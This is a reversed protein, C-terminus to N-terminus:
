WVHTLFLLHVKQGLLVLVDASIEVEVFRSGIFGPLGEVPDADTISKLYKKDCSRSPRTHTLDQGSPSVMRNTVYGYM